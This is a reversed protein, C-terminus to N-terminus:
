RLTITQHSLRGLSFICISYFMKVSSGPHTFLLISVETSKNRTFRLYGSALASELQYIWGCSAANLDSSGHSPGATSGRRKGHLQEVAPCFGTTNSEMVQQDTLLEPM